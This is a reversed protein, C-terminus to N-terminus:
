PLNEFRTTGDLSIYLVRNVMDNGTDLEEQIAAIANQLVTIQEDRLLDGEQIFVIGAHVDCAGAVREFDTINATVLIRDESLAYEFVRRDSAGLLGRDRVAIADIFLTQALYHAVAPSMDEDILFKM